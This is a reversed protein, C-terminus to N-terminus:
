LYEANSDEFYQVLTAVQDRPGVVDVHVLRDGHGLSTVDRVAGARLDSLGLWDTLERLSAEVTEDAYTVLGFVEVADDEDM